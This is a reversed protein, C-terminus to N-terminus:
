YFPSLSLLLYNAGCQVSFITQGENYVWNPQKVFHMFANLFIIIIIFTNSYFSYNLFKTARPLQYNIMWILVSYLCPQPTLGFISNKSVHCGNQSTCSKLEM